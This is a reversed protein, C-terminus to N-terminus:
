KQNANFITLKEGNKNTTEIKTIVKEGKKDLIYVIYIVGKYWIIIRAKGSTGNLLYEIEGHIEDARLGTSKCYFNLKLPYKPKKGTPTHPTYTFCCFEIPEDKSVKDFRFIINEEQIQISPFSDVLMKCQQLYFNLQM